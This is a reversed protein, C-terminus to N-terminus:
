LSLFTLNVKAGILATLAKSNLDWGLGGHVQINEIPFYHVMAGVNLDYLKKMRSYINGVLKVDIKESPAWALSPRFTNGKLLDTPADDLDYSVDIANYWDFGFTFDDAFEVKNSLAVFWEFGRDVRQIASATWMNSYPGFSSEMKGTYCFIGSAFPREGFPSTTMQLTLALADSPAYGVSAGWQYAPLNYWLNSAYVIKDDVLMYDCDFDWEDFEFGGAQVNDKGVTFTWDGFNFGFTLVDLWNNSNSYLTSTYLNATDEWGPRTVALWHNSLTFSVHESFAGEIHTYISSNGFSYGSSGDGSKGPTFYPSFDTRPIFQFEAYRGTGEAEQSHALSCLLLAASLLLLKKM